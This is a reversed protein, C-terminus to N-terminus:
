EKLIEFLRMGTCITGVFGPFGASANCFYLGNISTREDLRNLGFHAPTLNSGYSNGRPSFCYRENTTPTGGVTYALHKRIDPIYKKEIVDLMSDLIEQKKRRYARRNIRKLDHFRQYDAVTVLELLQIEPPCSQHQSAHLSPTSIAFSPREYNGLSYMEDYAANLDMRSTHYFISQGFGHETLDLGEVACYAIFNSPSYQYDLRRRVSSSFRELGIMEAARKPDFNCVVADALHECKDLQTDTDESIAGVCQEKAFVFDVVKRNYLVEGGNEQIIEVLSDVFFEFSRSVSYAGGHYGDVLAVWALFSVKRPPLMFCPWQLALLTQAEPPISFDDFVEQLTSNVNRILRIFSLSRKAFPAHRSAGGYGRLAKGTAAVLRVFSALNHSNSPFLEILREILLEYDYPIDLSLGLARMREYALSDFKDFSVRDRIGLARLFQGVPQNDGCDWVYHLQANFTYKDAMTFTHGYGGPFEHAELVCVSKGRQSMLAAFSLGALGSGLVLHDYKM